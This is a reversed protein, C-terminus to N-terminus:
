PFTLAPSTVDSGLEPPTMRPYFFFVGPRGRGAPRIPRGRVGPDLFPSREADTEEVWSFLVAREPRLAGPRSRRSFFFERGPLFTSARSARDCLPITPPLGDTGRAGM